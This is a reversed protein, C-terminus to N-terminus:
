AGRGPPVGRRPARADVGAATGPPPILAMRRRSYDLVVRARSLLDACAIGQSYVSLDLGGPPSFALTRVRGFTAVPGLTLWPLSGSTATIALHTTASSSSASSDSSSSSSSDSSSSSSSDSSSSTSHAPSTSGTGVGRVVRSAPPPSTSNSRSGGRKSSARRRHEELLGLEEAARSHFMVDAGGAGSDVMLMISHERKAGQEKRTAGRSSFSSPRAERKRSSGRSSNKTEVEGYEEQVQEGEERAVVPMTAHVHPLNSVFRLDCWRGEASAPAKYTLPDDLRLRTAVAGAGSFSSSRKSGGKGTGNSGAGDGGGGGGPAPRPLTVVAARFLDHGLIGVTRMSKGGAPGGTVVGAVPMEMFLPDALEVPGLSLSAARRFRSRVAGAVGAVFLEGFSRLGLSDAAEAEIVLGSAGSDVLFLGPAPAGDILPRVLLHGSSSWWAPVDNSSPSYPYSSSSRNSSYVAGAPRPSDTPVPCSFPSPSSSSPAAAVTAAAAAAVVVAQRGGGLGVAAVAAAAAAASSSSSSSSADEEEEEESVVESVSRLTFENEGGSPAAHTTKEPFARGRAGPWRAWNEFRWREKGGCLPTSLEVPLCTTKDSLTLTAEVSGGGGGCESGEGDGDDDDLGGHLLRLRLSPPDSSGQRPLVSRELLTGAEERAWWGSRVAAALLLAEHDDLELEKAVGRDDVEWSTSTASLSPSSSLLSSCSSSPKEGGRAGGGCYGWSFSLNEGGVDERFALQQQQGQGKGGLSLLLKWSVDSGLHRGDGSLLLHRKGGGENNDGSGGADSEATAATTPELSARARSLIEELSLAGAGIIIDGDDDDDGNPGAVFAAAAAATSASASTSTSSSSSRCPPTIVKAAPPPPRRRQHLIANSCCNPRAPAALPRRAAVLCLSKERIQIRSVARAALRM